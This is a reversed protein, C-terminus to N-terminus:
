PTACGRSSCPSTRSCATWGRSRRRGSRAHGRPLAGADHGGRRAVPRAAHPQPGPQPVLEARRHLRDARVRGVYFALDEATLWAPLEDGARLVDLFGGGEPLVGARSARTTAAPRGTARRASSSGACRRRSTPRSSPARRRGAGPLLGPLLPRRVRGAVRGDALDRRAPHVPREPRRSGRRPRAAAARHAVRGARGLRPRHRDRPEDGLAGILGVVDGVLDLQTYREIEEPRDTRGYGRQDPAVVRFGADALAAIQHRWSYWSEPWGHLLVVLPGDGREAVHM